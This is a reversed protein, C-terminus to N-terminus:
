SAGRGRRGPRHLAGEAELAVLLREIAASIVYLGRRGYDAEQLAQHMTSMLVHAKPGVRYTSQRGKEVYAMRDDLFQQAWAIQENVETPAHRLAADLYHGVALTSNGSTRRDAKIREKLKGLIEPEIRFGHQHWEESRIKAHAYSEHVAAHAWSGQTTTGTRSWSTTAEISSTGAPTQETRQPSAILPRGAGSHGADESASAQLSPQAVQDTGASPGVTTTRAAASVPSVATKPTATKRERSQSPLSSSADSTVDDATSDSRSPKPNTTEVALQTLGATNAGLFSRGAVDEAGAIVNSILNPDTTKPRRAAQFASPTRKKPKNRRAGSSPQDSM